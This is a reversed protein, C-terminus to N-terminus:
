ARGLLHAHVAGAKLHRLEALGHGALREAGWHESAELYLRGQPALVRLAATVASEYLKADFPPDLLVLDVSAAPMRGTLAAGDGRTVQVQAAGLKTKLQLLQAVLAADAEFLQVERAGRSAAELGLAGTGAFMDVCCWGSLDQGLWNFLTERVRDPTPRLGPKDAVPLKTRKWQGGIIRVENPRVAPTTTKKAPPRPM